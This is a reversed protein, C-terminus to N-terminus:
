PKLVFEHYTTPDPHNESWYDVHPYANSFGHDRGINQVRSVDPWVQLREKRWYYNMPFGWSKFDSRNIRELSGADKLDELDAGFWQDRIEEYIRRWTGWGYCGFDRNRCYANKLGQDDGFVGKFRPMFGTISFVDSDDQFRRLAWEMFILYDRAPVTDDELTILADCGGEFVTNFAVGANGACGINREQKLISGGTEPLSSSRYTAVISEMEKPYGGDVFLNVPFREIGECQQLSRVVEKFYDPRRWAILNIVINM